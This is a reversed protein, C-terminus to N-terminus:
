PAVIAKVCAESARRRASELEESVLSYHEMQELSGKLQHLEALGKHPDSAMQRDAEEIATDVTRRMWAREASAVDEAFTPFESVLAKRAPAGRVYGAVDGSPLARLEDVQQYASWLSVGRMTPVFWGALAALTLGAAMWGLRAYWVRRRALSIGTTFGIAIGLLAFTLRPLHTGGLWGLGLLGLIGLVFFMGLVIKQDIRLEETQQRRAPPSERCPRQPEPQRQPKKRPARPDVPEVLPPEVEAVVPSKQAPRWPRSAHIPPPVDLSAPRWPEFPNVRGKM